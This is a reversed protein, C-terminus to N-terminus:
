VKVESKESLAADIEAQLKKDKEDRFIKLKEEYENEDFKYKFMPIAQLVLGLAGLASVCFFMATLTSSHALVASRPLVQGAAELASRESSLQVLKDYGFMNVIQMMILNFGAIGFKNVLSKFSFTVGELREGSEMEISDVTDSFIATLLVTSMGVPFNTFFRLLAYIGLGIRAMSLDPSDYPFVYKCVVFTFIDAVAFILSQWIFLKKKDMRKLLAPVIAMSLMYSIGSSINLLPFLVGMDSLVVNKLGFTEGIWASIAAFDIIGYCNWKCFYMLFMAGLNTISSFFAVSILIKTNKNRFLIKISDIYKLKKSKLHVKEKIGFFSIFIATGGFLAFVISAIFYGMRENGSSKGFSQVMPMFIISPLITGFSGVISSIAIAKVRSKSDTFVLPTLGQYPIDVSTNFTYFLLYSVMAFILNGTSISPGPVRVFHFGNNITSLTAELDLQNLTFSGFRGGLDIPSFLLALSVMLPFFMFLLYPRCKGWKTRTRDVLMGMMPDNVADWLKSAALILGTAVLGLGLVDSFYVNLVSGLVNQLTLLGFPLMSFAIIEKMSTNKLDIRQKAKAM